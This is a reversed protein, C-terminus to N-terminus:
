RYSLDFVYSDISGLRTKDREVVTGVIGVGTAGSYIDIKGTSRVVEGGTGNFTTDFLNIPEFGRPGSM